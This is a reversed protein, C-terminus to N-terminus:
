GYLFNSIFTGIKKDGFEKKVINNNKDLAIIAPFFDINYKKPIDNDSNGDIKVVKVKTELMQIRPTTIRCGLCHDVYFYIIKKINSNNM